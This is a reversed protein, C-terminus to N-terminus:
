FWRRWWPAPKLGQASVSAALRAALTPPVPVQNRDERLVEEVSAYERTVAAQQHHEATTHEEHQERLDHRFRPDSNM